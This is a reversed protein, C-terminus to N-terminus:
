AQVGALLPTIRDMLGFRLMGCPFTSAVARAAHLGASIEEAGQICLHLNAVLHRLGGARPLTRIGPPGHELGWIAVLPAPARTGFRYPTGMVDWTGSAGPRLVIMDDSLVRAGEKALMRAVTSKGAESPGAFVHARGQLEVASAHLAFGGAELASLTIEGRILMDLGVMSPHPVVQGQREARDLFGVDPADRLFIRHGDKVILGHENGVRDVRGGRSVIRLGAGQRCDFAQYRRWVRLALDPPTVALDFRVGAIQVGLVM